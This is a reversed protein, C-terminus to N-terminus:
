GVNENRRQSIIGEVRQLDEPTDVGPIAQSVVGVKIRAGLYLARLQELSEGLELLTPATECFKKLFSRSYGYLGIHKLCGEIKVSQEPSVRSFPIPFRSFYIAENNQNILVKVSNPSSLEEHSIPHGLTAMEAQPGELLLRVLNDIYVGSILPEDGQINIVLDGSRGELAANVRDTGSILSSSTMVVEVGLNQVLDFIRQDDTAVIVENLLSSTQVGEIVWQLLPKGHLQVLPKGPFRMSAYRAPIVGVIKKM